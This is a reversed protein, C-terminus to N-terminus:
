SRDLALEVGTHTKGCGPPGHIVNLKRKECEEIVKKSDTIPIRLPERNQLFRNKIATGIPTMTESAKVYQQLLIVSKENSKSIYLSCTSGRLVAELLDQFASKPDLTNIITLSLEQIQISNHLNM